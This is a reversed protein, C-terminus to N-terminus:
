KTPPLSEKFAEKADWLLQCVTPEQSLPSSQEASIWGERGLWVGLFVPVEVRMSSRPQTIRDPRISHWCALESRLVGHKTGSRRTSKQWDKSIGYGLSSPFYIFRIWIWKMISFQKVCGAEMLWRGGLLCILSYPVFPYQQRDSLSIITVTWKTATGSSQFTWLFIQQIISDPVKPCLFLYQTVSSPSFFSNEWPLM